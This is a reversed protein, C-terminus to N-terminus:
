NYILRMYTWILPGNPNIKTQLWYLYLCLLCTLPRLKWILLHKKGCKNHTPPIIEKGQNKLSNFFLKNFFLQSWPTMTISRMQSDINSPHPNRNRITGTGLYLNDKHWVGILGSKSPKGPIPTKTYPNSSRTNLLNADTVLSLVQKM